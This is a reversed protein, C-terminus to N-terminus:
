PTPTITDVPDTSSNKQGHGGNGKGQSSANAQNLTQGSLAGNEESGEQHDHEAAWGQNGNGSSESSNTENSGSKALTRNVGGWILIGIFGILLLTLIIKKAM